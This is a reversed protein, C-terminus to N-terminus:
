CFIENVFGGAAMMKTQKPSEMNSYTTTPNFHVSLGNTNENGNYETNKGLTYTM